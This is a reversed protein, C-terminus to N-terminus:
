ARASRRQRPHTGVAKTFARELTRAASWITARSYGAYGFLLAGAARSDRRSKTAPGPLRYSSLPTTVVANEFAIEALRADTIGARMVNDRLWGVLHM